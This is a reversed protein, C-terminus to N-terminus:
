VLYVFLLSGVYNGVVKVEGIGGFVVCVFQQEVKLCVLKVYYLGVLGIFIVFCYIEFFKVGIFEDIVFMYFCVYLVSGEQLFIWVVDIDILVYLVEVFVDEFFVFMMLCEVFCNICIVYMELCFLWLDGDKSKFVKMGEFIVQGYYFVMMVLYMM